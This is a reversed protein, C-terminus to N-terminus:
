ENDTPSSLSQLVQRPLSHCRFPKWFGSLVLHSRDNPNRARTRRNGRMTRRVCLARPANAAKTACQKGSCYGVIRVVAQPKYSLRARAARSPNEKINFYLMGSIVRIADPEPPSPSPPLALLSTSRRLHRGQVETDSLEPANQSRSANKSM